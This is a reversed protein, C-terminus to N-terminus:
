LGSYRGPRAVHHRPHITDYPKSVAMDEGEYGRNTVDVVHGQETFGKRIFAAIKPNDEIALLRM